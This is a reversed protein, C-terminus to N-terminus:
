LLYNIIITIFLIGLLIDIKGSDFATNKGFVIKGRL